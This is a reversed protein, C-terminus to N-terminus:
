PCMIEQSSPADLFNTWDTVLFLTMEPNESPLKDSLKTKLLVIKYGDKNKGIGGVAEDTELNVRDERLKQM